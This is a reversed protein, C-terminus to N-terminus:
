VHMCLRSAKRYSSGPVRRPRIHLM